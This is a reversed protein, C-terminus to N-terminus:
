LEDVIKQLLKITFQESHTKTADLLGNLYFAKEENIDSFTRNEIETVLKSINDSTLKDIEPYLSEALKAVNIKPM